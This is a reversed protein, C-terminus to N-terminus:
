HNFRAWRYHDFLKVLEGVMDLVTFSDANASVTTGRCAKNRVAFKDGPSSSRIDESRVLGIDLALRRSVCDGSFNAPQILLAIIRQSMSESTRMSPFPNTATNLPIAPKTSGSQYPRIGSRGM